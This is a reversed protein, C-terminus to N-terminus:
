PDVGIPTSPGQRRPNLRHARPARAL